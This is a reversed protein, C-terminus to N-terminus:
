HMCGTAKVAMGINEAPMRSKASRELEKQLLMLAQEITVETGNDAYSDAIQLAMLVMVSDTVSTLADAYDRITRADSYDIDCTSPHAMRYLMDLTHAVIGASHDIQHKILHRFAKEGEAHLEEITKNKHDTM